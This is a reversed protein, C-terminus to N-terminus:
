ARRACCMVYAWNLRGIMPEIDSPLLGQQDMRFKIEEVPDAPETPHHRAEDAWSISLLSTIWSSLAIRSAGFYAAVADSWAFM